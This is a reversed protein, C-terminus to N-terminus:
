AKPTFTAYLKRVPGTSSWGVTAGKPVFCTDGKVFTEERGADDYLKMEGDIVHMFEHSSYTVPKRTYPTAEWVASTLQGTLDEFV